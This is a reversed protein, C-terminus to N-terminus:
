QCHIRMGPSITKETPASSIPQSKRIFSREGRPAVMRGLSRGAIAGASHALRRHLLAADIDKICVARHGNGRHPGIAPRLRRDDAVGILAEVEVEQDVPVTLFERVDAAVIPHCDTDPGLRALKTVYLSDVGATLNRLDGIKRLASSDPGQEFFPM